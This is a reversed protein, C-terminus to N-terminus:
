LTELFAVDPQWVVGANALGAKLDPSAARRALYGLLGVSAADAWHLDDLLATLPNHRALSQLFQSLGEWVRAEEM